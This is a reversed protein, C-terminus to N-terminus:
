PTDVSILTLVDSEAYSNGSETVITVTAESVQAAIATALMANANGSDFTFWTVAGEAWDGCDSRTNQLRVSNVPVSKVGQVQAATSIVSAGSCYGDEARTVSCLLAWFVGTFLLFILQKNIAITMIM